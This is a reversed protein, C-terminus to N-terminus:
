STEMHARSMMRGQGAGVGWVAAEQGGIMVKSAQASRWLLVSLARKLWKETFCPRENFRFNPQDGALM